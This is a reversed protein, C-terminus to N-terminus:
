LWVCSVAFPPAPASVQFDACPLLRGGTQDQAARTHDGTRARRQRAEDAPQAGPIKKRCFEFEKPQDVDRLTALKKQDDANLKRIVKGVVGSQADEGAYPEVPNLIDGFEVGRESRIVCRDGMRLGSFDARFGGVHSMAGFRITARYKM